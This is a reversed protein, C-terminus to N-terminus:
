VSTNNNNYQFLMLRAVFSIVKETYCHGANFDSVNTEHTQSLGKNYYDMLIM